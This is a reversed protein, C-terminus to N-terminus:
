GLKIVHPNGNEEYGFGCIIDRWDQQAYAMAISDKDVICSCSMGWYKVESKADYEIGLQNHIHGHVTNRQYYRSHTKKANESTLHGHAIITRPDIALYDLHHYSLGPPFELLDPLAKLIFNPIGAESARKSLRREHNGQLITVKPFWKAFQKIQKKAENLEQVTSPATPDKVFRTFGYFDVFDGLQYVEDAKFTKNFKHVEELMKMNTFPFHLDPIYLRKM